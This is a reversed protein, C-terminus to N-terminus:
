RMDTKIIYSRYSTHARAIYYCILAMSIAQNKSLSVMRNFVLEIHTHVTKQQHSSMQRPAILLELAHRSFRTPLLNLMMLESRSISFKVHALTHISLTKMLEAHSLSIQTRIRQDFTRFNVKCCMNLFMETCFFSLFFSIVFM